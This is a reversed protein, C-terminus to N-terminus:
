AEKQWAEPSTAAPLAPVRQLMFHRLQEAVLVPSQLPQKLLPDITSRTVQAGASSWCCSILVAFLASLLTSIPVVGPLWVSAPRDPAASFKRSALASM